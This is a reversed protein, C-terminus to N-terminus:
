AAFLGRLWAPGPLICEPDVILADFGVDLMPLRCLWSSRVVYETCLWCEELDLDLLVVPLVVEEVRARFM